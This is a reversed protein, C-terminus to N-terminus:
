QKRTEFISFVFGVLCSVLALALPITNLNIFDKFTSGPVAKLQAWVWVGTIILTSLLFWFSISYFRKIKGLRFGSILWSIVLALIMAANMILFLVLAYTFFNTSTTGFHYTGKTIGNFFDKVLTAGTAGSYYAKPLYNGVGLVIGTAAVICVILLIYFILRKMGYIYGM